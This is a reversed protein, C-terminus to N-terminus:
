FGLPYTYSALFRSCDQPFNRAYPRYTYELALLGWIDFDYTYRLGIDISQHRVPGYGHFRYFNFSKHGTGWLTHTFVRFLQRQDASLYEWSLDGRLWPYGVDACGLALVSWWRQTWTSWCVVEQGFAVHAEAEFKGHHFSSPDHLSEQCAQILTIGTTLSIPDGIVDNLWLKRITAQASDFGFQRHRTDALIIEFEADIPGFSPYDLLSLLTTDVSAELGLTLFFDDSSHKRSHRSSQIYPYTQYVASARLDVEFDKGFWPMLERASAQSAFIFLSNVLLAFFCFARRQKNM